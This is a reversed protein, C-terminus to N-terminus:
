PLEKLGPRVQTHKRREVWGGGLQGYLRGGAVCPIEGLFWDTQAAWVFDLLEESNSTLALKVQDSYGTSEAADGCVTRQSAHPGKSGEVSCHNDGREGGMDRM